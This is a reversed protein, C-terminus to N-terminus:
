NEAKKVVKKRQRKKKAANKRVLEDISNLTLVNHDPGMCQQSSITEHLKTAAKNYTDKFLLYDVSSRMLVQEVKKWNDRFRQVAQNMLWANPLLKQSNKGRKSLRYLHLTVTRKSPPLEPHAHGCLRTGRGILQLLDTYDALASVQHIHRLGPIDVGKYAELRAFVVKVLGGDINEPTKLFGLLTKVDPRTVSKLYGTVPGHRSPRNVGNPDYFKTAIRNELANVFAFRKKTVTKQNGDRPNYQEFGYRTKLVWALLRLTMPSQSYVFHVGVNRPDMIETLVRLLKPSLLYFADGAQDSRGWVYPSTKSVAQTKLDEANEIGLIGENEVENEGNNQSSSQVLAYTKTASSPLVKIWESREKVAKYFSLKKNPTYEAEAYNNPKNPKKAYPLWRNGYLANVYKTNPLKTLATAYRSSFKGFAKTDTADLDMCHQAINVAAFKNTDGLVYAYSVLGRSNKALADITGFHGKTAAVCDMVHGVAEVTEGPTATMAMVWTSQPDRDEMLLKRIQDYQKEFAKESEPPSFLLQIEDCVLVAYQLRRKIDKDKYIRNALVAYSMMIENEKLPRTVGLTRYGMSIRQRLADKAKDLGHAFPYEPLGEVTSRFWPFLMAAGKALESLNNSDQNSRVSLTILAWPKKTTPTLTNWFAIMTALGTFSKGAGTSHLALLGPTDILRRARLNAMVYVVSQHVQLSAGQGNKWEKKLSTCAQPNNSALQDYPSLPSGPIGVNGAILPRQQLPGAIKYLNVLAQQFAPSAPTKPVQQLWAAEQQLRAGETERYGEIHKKRLGKAVLVQTVAPNLGSGEVNNPSHSQYNPVFSSGPVAVGAARSVYANKKYNYYNAPPAASSANRQVSKVFALAADTDEAPKGFARLRQKIRNMTTADIRRLQRQNSNNSVNVFVYYASKNPTWGVKRHLLANRAAAHPSGHKQVNLESASFKEHRGGTWLYYKATGDSLDVAFRSEGPQPRQNKLAQYKKAVDNLSNGPGRLKKLVSYPFTKRATTKGFTTVYQNRAVNVGPTAIERAANLSSAKSNPVTRRKGDVFVVFKKQLPDYHNETTRKLAKIITKLGKNSYPAYGPRSRLTSLKDVKPKKEKKKNNNVNTM